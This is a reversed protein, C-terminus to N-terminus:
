ADNNQNNRESEEIQVQHVHVGDALQKLKRSSVSVGSYAEFRIIDVVQPSHEASAAIVITQNFSLSM